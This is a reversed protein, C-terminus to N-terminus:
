GLVALGRSEYVSPRNATLHGHLALTAAHLPSIDAGTGKSTWAWADGVDRTKVKQVANDLDPHPRHGLAGQVVADLFGACAGAYERADTTRVNVGARELAPILGAAVDNGNMLLGQPRHKQLEVLRDVVWDSGRRRDVIEVIPRGTAMGCAAITTYSQDKPRSVGFCVPDQPPDQTGLSAWAELAIGSLATPPDEWWGLRERAFEVPTLTMRETERIFEESIRRGLAPNALAWMQPDDLVCGPTNPRHECDETECPKHPACWEAYTLRPSGGARGRDRIGRLVASHLKGASSGYRIQANPRASMTPLLAGIQGPSLEFAEDLIVKDGSMGRGSKATRALFKMRAGSLLEIAEDGNATSVTRVRRRLHDYNDVLTHLDRFAEQSTKFEHATWVILQDECLFLDALGAAELVFTKLNQRPAIVANEFSVWKGDPGIAFWDDLLQEQDADLDMGVSHALDVAEPGLTREYAPAWRYAPAVALDPM